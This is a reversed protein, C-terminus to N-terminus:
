RGTGLARFLFALMPEIMAEIDEGERLRHEVILPHLSSLNCGRAPPSCEL